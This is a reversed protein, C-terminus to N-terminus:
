IIKNVKDIIDNLEITIEDGVADFLIDNTKNAYKVIADLFPRPKIGRIGISKRIAFSAALPIRKKKLWDDIPKKPPMRSGPKRGKDIYVGYEPINIILEYVNDFEDISYSINKIIDSGALGQRRLNEKTMEVIRDGIIDLQEEIM